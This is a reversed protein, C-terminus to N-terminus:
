VLPKVYDTKPTKLAERVWRGREEATRRVALREANCPGDGNIVRKFEEWDPETYVWRGTEQDKSLKPDPITFGLEWIKPVYMDLFQNRMDDNSAMKVKWKMLVETHASMKDPPGFFHMMPAWWRDIAEQMMQRQKKTGTAMHIVCHHGYKLHFSEEACIRDLARCYPGYSGRANALQNVIAGADVLWSIFCADAWTYAPYNFINSYKSKGNILDDIMAERPKGLTEAAAYLLQAHGVEDQVKAMLALKRRFGPARTIWTGEPLAGIIESHAHQEIMRILQKRYLDPMWDTPEIKEGREIRAEFAELKVPDENTLEKSNVPEFTNGGGYM